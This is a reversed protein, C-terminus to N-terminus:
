GFELEAALNSKEIQLTTHFIEYKERLIRNMEKLARDPASSRVQASM